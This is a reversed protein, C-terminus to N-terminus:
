RPRAKQTPMAMPAIAISGSCNSSDMFPGRITLRKGAEGNPTATKAMNSNKATISANRPSATSATSTATSSGTSRCPAPWCTM